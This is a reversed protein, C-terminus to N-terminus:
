ATARSSSANTPMVSEKKNGFTKVIIPSHNMHYQKRANWVRKYRYFPVMPYLHHVLHYNQNMLLLSFLSDFGLRLCTAKYPDEQHTHSHNHHPLFGLALTLCFMSIRAPIIWLILAQYWVDFCICATFITMAIFFTFVLEKLEKSPRSSIIKLYKPMYLLDFFMWKIPRLFPHGKSCIDHDPDKTSNTFRHHQMHLYRFASMSALPQLIFMCIRGIWVNVDMNASISRHCAEHLVTFIMYISTANILISAILWSPHNLYLFIGFSFNVLAFIFLLLTPYALKVRRTLRKFLQKDDDIHIDDGSLEIVRSM